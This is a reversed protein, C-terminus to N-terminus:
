RQQKLLALSDDITEMRKRLETAENVRMAVYLATRAARVRVNLDPDEMAESLVLTAKIMLAQLENHALAVSDSRLSVLRSRFERNSLWRNLTTRGINANRAGEALSSASALYPLALAQRPTLPTTEPAGNHEL